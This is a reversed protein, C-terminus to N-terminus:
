EPRPDVLLDVHERDRDAEADAGGIELLNEKGVRGDRRVQRVQNSPKARSVSIVSAPARWSPRRARSPLVPASARSWQSDRNCHFLYGREPVGLVEQIRPRVGGARSM